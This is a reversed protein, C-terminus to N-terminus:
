NLAGERMRSYIERAKSRCYSLLRAIYNASTERSEAIAAASEGGFYFRALTERCRVGLQGLTAGLILKRVVTEVIDESPSALCVDRDCFPEAAGRRNYQRAANCIAGILYPRLERVNSQNVLYTAFVDQVLDEADAEPVGFRRVALLRLLPRYAAYIGRVTGEACSARRRDPATGGCAVPGTICPEDSYHGRQTLLLGLSLEARVCIIRPLGAAACFLPLRSWYRGRVKSGVPNRISALSV